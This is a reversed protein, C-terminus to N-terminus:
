SIFMADGYSFFRYKERVAEAYSQLMFARGDLKGPSAFASVLMLLTSKPLHFNTLLGDIMRFDCPPYIFISTRDNTPILKGDNNAAVSELVRVTTTGIAIVRRGEQKAQNVAKATENSVSFRESHMKHELINDSKVPLFTGLGVHLTIEAIEVGKARARDLFESTFHLGATPAAVSGPNQAFVTQYREYDNNQTDNFNRQIYPPLPLLGITEVSKLINETGTFSLLCHGEDNKKQATAIIDTRQENPSTLRLQIGPRVRKGPKLLCWWENKASEELLLIEVVGGTEKVGSLRAPIVKSNNLVLLDGSQLNDLLDPFVGHRHQQTARDLLLLRSHDREAAPKQAILDPPLPYDFDSTQM